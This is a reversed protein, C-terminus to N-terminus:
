WPRVRSLLRCHYNITNTTFLMQKYNM